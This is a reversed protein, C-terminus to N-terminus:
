RLSSGDGRPKMVKAVSKEMKNHMSVDRIKGVRKWNSNQVRDKGSEEVDDGKESLPVREVVEGIRGPVM